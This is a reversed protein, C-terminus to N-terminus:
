QMYDLHIFHGEKGKEMLKQYLVFIV